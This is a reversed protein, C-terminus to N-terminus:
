GFLGVIKPATYYVQSTDPHKNNAAFLTSQDNSVNLNTIIKGNGNFNGVFPNAETGIPPLIYGDMDLVGDPITDALEFYYQRKVNDTPNNNFMGMYQLWALNYLHRPIKIGFPKDETGDGYAFYAGASKGTLNYAENTISAKFWAFTGISTVGLTFITLTTFLAIKLKNKGFM